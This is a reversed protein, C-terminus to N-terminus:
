VWSLLHAISSCYTRCILDSVPSITLRVEYDVRIKWCHSTSGQSNLPIQLQVALEEPESTVTVGAVRSM